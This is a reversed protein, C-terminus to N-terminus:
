VLRGFINRKADLIGKIAYRLDNFEFYKLKETLIRLIDKRYGYKKAFDPYYFIIYYKNRTL